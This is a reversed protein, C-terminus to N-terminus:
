YASPLTKVRFFTKIPEMQRNNGITKPCIPHDSQQTNIQQDPESTRSGGQIKETEEGGSSGGDVQGSGLRARASRSPAVFLLWLRSTFGSRASRDRTRVCLSRLLREGDILWTTVNAREPSNNEESSLNLSLSLTFCGSLRSSSILAASNM